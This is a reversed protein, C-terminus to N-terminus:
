QAGHQPNPTKLGYPFAICDGYVRGHTYTFDSLIEQLHRERKTKINHKIKQGRRRSELSRERRRHPWYEEMSDM